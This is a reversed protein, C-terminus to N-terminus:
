TDFMMCLNHLMVCLVSKVPEPVSALSVAVV